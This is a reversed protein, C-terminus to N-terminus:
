IVIKKSDKKLPEIKKLYNNELVMNMELKYVYFFTTIPLYLLSFFYVIFLLCIFTYILFFVATLILNFKLLFYLLVGILVFLALLIIIPILIILTIFNIVFGLGILVFYYIFIEFKQNKAIKRFYNFAERLTFKKLYMLPIIFNDLLFYFIGILISYFIFILILIILNILKFESLTRNFFSIILPSLIISIIIFNIIDLLIRFFFLSLTQTKTENIAKKIQIEKKVIGDLFVFTFMSNLYKFFLSILYFIFFLIVIIYGYQSLFKISENNIQVISEKFSNNYFSESQNNFSNQYSLYPMYSKKSIFLSIFAMKLWYKKRIPFLIEKTRTFANNLLNIAYAM